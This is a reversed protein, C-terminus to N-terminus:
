LPLRIRIQTGEKIDTQFSITGGLNNIRHTMNKLGNGELNSSSNFVFGKGNDKIEIELRASNEKIKVDIHSAEAHKVINHFAEKFVLLLNKKKRSSLITTDDNIVTNYDYSLSYDNLYRSLYSQLHALFDKLTNQSDDLAWIIDRMNTLSEKTLTTIRSVQKKKLEDLEEFLLDEGIFLISSLGGGIDDHLERGIRNREEYIAKQRELLQRQIRLEKLFYLRNGIIVLFAFGLILAANFWWTKWFPTPINFSIQNIPGEQHHESLARYELIYQGPLLMNFKVIGGYKTTTWNKNSQNKLRYQVYPIESQDLGVAFFQFELNDEYHRLKNNKIISLPKEKENVWLTGIYANANFAPLKISDPHFVTVGNISGMWIRGDSAMLASNESFLNTSIGDVKTFKLLDNNEPNYLWLGKNTGLWLRGTKDEQISYVCSQNHEINENSLVFSLNRNTYKCLGAETALWVTDGKNSQLIDYMITGIKASDILSFKGDAYNLVTFVESNYPAFVQSGAGEFFFDIAYRDAKEFYPIKKKVYGAETRELRFVEDISSVIIEGAIGHFLALLKGGKLEFVKEWAEKLTDIEINRYIKSENIGWIVGKSDQSIQHLNSMNNNHTSKQALLKGARNFIFLGKFKTLVWIRNASDEIINKVNCNPSLLELPNFYSVNPAIKGYEVGLFPHTIWLENEPTLYLDHPANSSIKNKTQTAEWRKEYKKNQTNFSWLGHNSSLLLVGEKYKLGDNLALEKHGNPSYHGKIKENVLDFEILGLDSILWLTTDGDLIGNSIFAEGLIGEQFSNMKWSGDFEKKWSEFGKTLLWPFAFIQEVDRKESSRVRFRMGSTSITTEHYTGSTTEYNWIKDNAVFWLKSAIFDFYFAHCDKLVYNCVVREFIDLERNYKRLGDVTTFWLDHNSDEFLRSQINQNYGNGFNISYPKVKQGDFRYVGQDHRIWVFGESDKTVFSNFRNDELGEDEGLLKFQFHSDQCILSECCFNCLFLAILIIREVCRLLYIDRIFHLIKKM